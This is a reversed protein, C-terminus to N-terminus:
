APLSIGPLDSASLGTLREYADVYRQRTQVVVESPLSPAPATKDWPQNELWDRLIQKDYPPPTEGLEWGEVPWYRSSDPTLVEDCLSLTGDIWGLEFKTDALIFGSGLAHKAAREFLTLALSEAQDMVDDGILKRAQGLTLNVDHAGLEAKTSPTLVPEPLEAGLELGGPLKAGHLTQSEQYEKWGSGALRSRVIFEVPLIDAKRVVQCRGELDGVNGFAEPVATQVLHHPLDSFHQNIWYDTLGCLIRGRDPITEAMVVDFASIRDTAVILLHKEDLEYIERVKGSAIKDM